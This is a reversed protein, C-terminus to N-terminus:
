LLSSESSVVCLRWYVALLLAIAMDDNDGSNTKGSVTKGDPHDQFRILQSGLEEILEASSFVTGRAEFASRDATIVKSSVALGGNIILLYTQQIAAMKIPQSTIVGIDPSIYTDFRDQTFPMECPGVAQLLTTAAIENNNCEVIPVIRADPHLTRLRAMFQRVIASLQEMHCRHVNVGCIGHIIHLGNENVSLAVIGMESVGHSAPDIAIWLIDAPEFPIRRSLSARVLPAPFYTDTKETLVGFVEQAFSGRKSKPVLRKMQAFKLISKWPPVLHLKHSCQDAQDLKVCAECALSHNILLFFYDGAANREKVQKVFQSFFGNIPPPTTICSFVRGEVQLLPYAFNYRHPNFTIIVRM